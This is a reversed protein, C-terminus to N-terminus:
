LTHRFRLGRLFGRLLVKSDIGAVAFGMHALQQATRPALGRWGGDGCAYISLRAGKNGRKDSQPKYFHVRFQQGRVAVDRDETVVDSWTKADDPDYHDKPEQAAVRIVVVFLAVGLLVWRHILGRTEM